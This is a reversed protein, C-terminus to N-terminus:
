HILKLVSYRNEYNLEIIYVGSPLTLGQEPIYFTQQDRFTHHHILQGNINFLKYHLASIPNGQYKLLWGDYINIIRWDDKSDINQSQCNNMTLNARQTLLVTRMRECQGKTFFKMCYDDVLCMINQVMAENGCSFQPYEPCDRYNTEQIPTDSIGDDSSCNENPSLHLLGLYHGVEHVLTLGLHYPSHLFNYGFFRPDIIIGDKSKTADEPLVAEGLTCDARDAIFINLYKAPDWIDIGGLSEKMVFYTTMNQRCGINQITTQTKTIATTPNGLPDMNALCFHIKPCAALKRYVEPLTPDQSLNRNSYFDNLIQLQQFIKDNSISHSSDESIIHFVTQVYLTQDRPSLKAGDSTHIFQQGAQCRQSKSPLSFIFCCVIFIHIKM